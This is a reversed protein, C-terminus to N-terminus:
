PVGLAVEAGAAGGSGALVGWEGSMTGAPSVVERLWLREWVARLRAPGPVREM